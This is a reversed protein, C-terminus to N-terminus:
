FLSFPWLQYSAAAVPAPKIAAALFCWDGPAAVTVNMSYSGAPTQAANTDAMNRANSATNRVTTNSGATFAGDGRVWGALWDNDTVTTISVTAAGNTGSNTNNAEVATTQQAGDFSEAAIAITGAGATAVINNSGSTPNALGYLYETESSNVSHCALTNIQTMAVGAYSVATVPNGDTQKLIGVLLYRNTGSTTFATTNSAPNVVSDISNDFTIAAFASPVSAMLFSLLCLTARSFTSM